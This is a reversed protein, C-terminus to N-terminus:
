RAFVFWLKRCELSFWDLAQNEGRCLCLGLSCLPLWLCLCTRLRLVSLQRIKPEIGGRYLLVLHRVNFVSHRERYGSMLIERLKARFVKPFLYSSYQLFNVKLLPFELYELSGEVLLLWLDGTLNNLWWLSSNTHKQTIELPLFFHFSM